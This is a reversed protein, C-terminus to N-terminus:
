ARPVSSACSRACLRSGRFVQWCPQDAAQFAACGRRKDESCDKLEWCRVENWAAGLSNGSIRVLEAEAQWRRDLTRLIWAVLVTLGVPIGFRILFGALVAGAEQWESM